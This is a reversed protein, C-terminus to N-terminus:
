YSAMIEDYRGSAKLKRMAENVDEVKKIPVSAKSFMIHSSAEKDSMLYFVPVIQDQANHQVIEKQQDRESGLIADVREILLLDVLRAATDVVVLQRNFKESTLLTEYEKSYSVGRQVGLRIHKKEIQLLGATPDFLKEDEKRAFLLNHGLRFVESSFHAFVRRKESDSASLAVDVEGEELMHVIRKWPYVQFRIQLGAQAFIAKALAIDLGDLNGQEDMTVFVPRLSVGVVLTRSETNEDAIASFAPLYFTICLTMGIYLLLRLKSTKSFLVKSKTVGM